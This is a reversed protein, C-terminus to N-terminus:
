IQMSSVQPLVKCIQMRKNPSELMSVQIEPYRINISLARELNEAGATVVQIKAPHNNIVSRICEDFEEGYPKVTPVIVTVDKSTYSPNEPVPYPKYKWFAVIHVVLRVYRFLFIVLFIGSWPNISLVFTSIRQHDFFYHLVDLLCFYLLPKYLAVYQLLHQFSTGWLAYHNMCLCWFTDSVSSIM